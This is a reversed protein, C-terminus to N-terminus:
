ARVVVTYTGIEAFTVTIKNVDFATVDCLLMKYSSDYVVVYPYQNNLNHTITILYTGDEEQIYTGDETITVEHIFTPTSTGISGLDEDTLIRNDGIFINGEDNATISAIVNNLYKFRIENTDIFSSLLIPGSPTGEMVIKTNDPFAISLRSNDASIKADYDTIRGFIINKDSSLYLKGFSDIGNDAIRIGVTKGSNGNITVGEIDVPNITKIESTNTKIHNTMLDVGMSGIYINTDNVHLHACNGDGSNIRLDGIYFNNAKCKIDNHIDGTGIAIYTDGYIIRGDDSTGKLSMMYNEHNGISLDNAVITINGAATGLIIATKDNYIKLDDSHYIELKNASKIFGKDMVINTALVAPGITVQQNTDNLSVYVDANGITLSDNSPKKISLAGIETDDFFIGDDVKLKNAKVKGGGIDLSGESHSISFQTESDILVATTFQIKDPTITIDKNNSKAILKSTEISDKSVHLTGDVSNIAFSTGVENNLNYQIFTDLIEKLDSDAYDALFLEVEKFTNITGEIATEDGVLTNFATEVQNVKNAVDKVSVTTTESDENNLKVNVLSVNGYVNLDNLVKM